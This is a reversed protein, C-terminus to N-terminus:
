PSLQMVRVNDFQAAVPTDNFLAMATQLGIYGSPFDSITASVMLEAGLYARYLSGQVTITLRASPTLPAELLLARQDATEHWEGARKVEFRVPQGPQYFLGVLNDADQVRVFVAVANNIRASAWSVDLDLRYDKWDPSGAFTLLPMGPPAKEITYTGDRTVIWRAARYSASQPLHWAPDPLGKLTTDFNDYFLLNPGPPANSTVV